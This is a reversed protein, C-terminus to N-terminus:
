IASCTPLKLNHSFLELILFLPLLESSMSLELVCLGTNHTRHSLVFVLSLGEINESVWVFDHKVVNRLHRFM